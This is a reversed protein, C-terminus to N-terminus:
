YLIQIHIINVNGIVTITTVEEYFGVNNVARCTIVDSNNADTITINNVDEAILTGNRLWTITIPPTGSITTCDITVSYGERVYVPSGITVRKNGETVNDPKEIHPGEDIDPPNGLIFM